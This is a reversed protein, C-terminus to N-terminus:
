HLKLSRSHKTLLKTIVIHLPQTSIAFLLPALLNVQRVGQDLSIEETHLGNVIVKAKAGIVLDKVLELFKGGFGMQEIILWLYEFDVMDFPKEFDLKLSLISTQSEEAWERVLIHSLSIIWSRDKLSLVQKSKM